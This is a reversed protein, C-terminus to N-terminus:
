CDAGLRRRKLLGPRFSSPSEPADDGVRMQLKSSRIRSMNERPTARNATDSSLTCAIEQCSPDMKAVRMKGVGPLQKVHVATVTPPADPLVSTAKPIASLVIQKTSAVSELPDTAPPLTVRAVRWCWPCGKGGRFPIM